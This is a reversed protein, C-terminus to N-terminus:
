RSLRLLSTQDSLAASSKSSAFDRRQAGARSTGQLASSPPPPCSARVSCAIRCSEVSSTDIPSTVLSTVARQSYRVFWSNWSTLYRMHTCINSAQRMASANRFRASKPSPDSPTSEFGSPSSKFDIKEQSV